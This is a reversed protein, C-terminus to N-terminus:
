VPSYWQTLQSGLCPAAAKASVTSNGLLSIGPLLHLGLRALAGNRDPAACGHRSRSGVARLKVSVATHNRPHLQEHCLALAHSLSAMSLGQGDM